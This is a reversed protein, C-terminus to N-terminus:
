VLVTRGTYDLLRAQAREPTASFLGDAGFTSIAFSAAVAARSCALHLDTPASLLSALFACCFADGAGTTDVPAQVFAPMRVIRGSSADLVLCGEAGLKIVVIRPGLAAFRHAAEAPDAHGLLHRVEDLSPMFIDVRAVLSMIAAENGAIYEEQPDLAVLARSRARWATALEAQAALTMALIMCGEADWYPEPVDAPCPSLTEFDAPDSLLTVSRTDHTRYDFRTHMTACARRPVGAHSLGASTISAAIGDPFDDGMPAVMQATPEFLRAGLVGYLADGGICGPRATGDPQVIDDITLNGCCVLRPRDRVDM